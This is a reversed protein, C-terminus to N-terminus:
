DLTLDLNLYRLKFKFKIRIGNREKEEERASVEGREEEQTAWGATRGVRARGMGGHHRDLEGVGRRCAGMLAGAGRAAHGDVHRRDSSCEHREEKRRWRLVVDSAVATAAEELFYGWM